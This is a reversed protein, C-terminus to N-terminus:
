GKRQFFPKFKHCGNLNFKGILLRRRQFRIRRRLAKGKFAPKLLYSFLFRGRVLELPRLRCRGANEFYLLTGLGVGFAPRNVIVDIM